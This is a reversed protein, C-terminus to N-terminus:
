ILYSDLDAPTLQRQLLADPVVSRQSTEPRMAGAPESDAPM